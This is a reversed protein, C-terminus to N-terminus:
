RSHSPVRRGHDFDFFPLRLFYIELLLHPIMVYNQRTPIVEVTKELMRVAIRM